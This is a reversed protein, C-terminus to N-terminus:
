QLPADPPVEALIARWEVAGEPNCVCPVGAGGCGEHPWPEAPHDECVWRAGRCTPCPEM